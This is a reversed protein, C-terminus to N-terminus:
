LLLIKWGNKKLKNQEKKDVDDVLMALCLLAKPRTMAVYHTKMLESFIKQKTKANSVPEGELLPLLKKLCHGGVYTELVLTALHTEGKVGHISDVHITTHRTNEQYVFDNTKKTEVRSIMEKIDSNEYWNLFKEDVMIDGFKYMFDSLENLYKFWNHRQSFDASLSKLAVARFGLLEDDTLASRFTDFLNRRLQYKLSMSRQNALRVIGKLNIYVADYLDVSNRAVVQAYRVYDIFHNFYCNTVKEAREVAQYGSFYDYVGEPMDETKHLKRTHHLLGVAYCKNHRDQLEEDTFSSLILKGFEKLVKGQTGTQFLFITPQLDKFHTDSGIMKEESIALPNAVKAISKSFRRSDPIVLINKNPFKSGFDDGAGYFIAQNQDGFRQIVSHKFAMDLLQEQLGDTDQAEDILVIPFRSSVAKEIEPKEKMAEYAYLLLERYTYYGATISEEVAALANRYTPSTVSFGSLKLSGIEDYYQLDKESKSKFKVMSWFTKTGADQDLRKMRIKRDSYAISDDITVIKAGMSKLWPITVFEAFFSHITGIFHPFRLINQGVKQNGLRDEIEKRAVNTHSLACIGNYPSVWKKSLIAMKAVLATTKGTGPFAQIDRTELCKIVRRRSNDFKVQNGFLREAWDIDTDSICIDNLCM